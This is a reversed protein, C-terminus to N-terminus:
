RTFFLQHCLLCRHQCDELFLPDSLMYIGSLALPEFAQGFPTALASDSVNYQMLRLDVGHWAREVQAVTPWVDPQYKSKCWIPHAFM